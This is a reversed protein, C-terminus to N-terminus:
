QGLSERYQKVKAHLEPEIDIPDCAVKVFYDICDLSITITKAVLCRELAYQAWTLSNDFDDGLVEIAFFSGCMWVPLWHAAEEAQMFGLCGNNLIERLPIQPVRDCYKLFFEQQCLSMEDTGDVAWPPAPLTAPIGNPFALAAGVSKPVFEEITLHSNEKASVNM